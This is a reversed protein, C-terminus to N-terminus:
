SFEDSSLPIQEVISQYFVVLIKIRKGQQQITENVAICIKCLIDIQSFLSQTKADKRSFLRNVFNNQRWKM